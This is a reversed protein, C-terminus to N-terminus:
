QLLGGSFLPKIRANDYVLVLSQSYNSTTISSINENSLGKSEWSSIQNDVIKFYKYM